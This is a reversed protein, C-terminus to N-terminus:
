KIVVKRGGYIYIGKATPKNVKRGDLTYYAENEGNRMKEM